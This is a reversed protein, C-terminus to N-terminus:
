KLNKYFRYHNKITKSLNTFRFKYYKKLLLNSCVLEPIDGKRNVGIKYNIKIKLVKQFKKLIELVSFGKNIGLNFIIDRTKKKNIIFFYIINTLDQVDIFDRVCTGDKTDYNNGNIIFKKRNKISYSISNFM